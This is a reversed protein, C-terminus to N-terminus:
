REAPVVTIETRRNRPESVEDNTPVAPRTEGFEIVSLAERFRDDNRIASAVTGARREALDHNYSVPGVLDTHGSILFKAAPLSAAYECAAAIQTFDDSSLGAHDFDFYVVFTEGATPQDPADVDVDATPAAGGGAVSQELYRAAGAHLPLGLDIMAPEVALRSQDVGVMKLVSEDQLMAGILRYVLADDVDARVILVVGSEAPASSASATEDDPSRRWLRVMAQLDTGRAALEAVIPQPLLAFQAEGATLQAAGDADGDTRILDVRIDHLRADVLSTLGIGIMDADSAPQGTVLSYVAEQGRVEAGLLAWVALGLLGYRWSVWQPM